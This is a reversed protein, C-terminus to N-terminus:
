PACWRTQGTSAGKGSENLCGSLGDSLASAQLCGLASNTAARARDGNVAVCAILATLVTAKKMYM